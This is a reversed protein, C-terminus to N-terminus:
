IYELDVKLVGSNSSNQTYKKVDLEKLDIWKPRGTPHFKTMTYGYLNNAGVQVRQRTKYNQNQIM